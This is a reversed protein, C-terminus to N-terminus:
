AAAASSRLAEVDLTDDFTFVCSAEEYTKAFRRIMEVVEPPLYDRSIQFYM